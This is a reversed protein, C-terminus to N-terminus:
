KKELNKSEATHIKMLGSHLADIKAGRYFKEDPSKLIVRMFFGDFGRAHTKLLNKIDPVAVDNSDGYGVCLWAVRGGKDVFWIQPLTGPIDCFSRISFGNDGVLFNLAVNIALISKEYESMEIKEAIDLENPIVNNNTNFNVLNWGDPAHVTLEYPRVDHDSTTIDLPFVCPIINNQRTLNWFMQDTDQSTIIKANNFIRILVAFVQNKYAFLFDEVNPIRHVVRLWAFNRPAGSQKMMTDLHRYAIEHAGNLINQEVEPTIKLKMSPM